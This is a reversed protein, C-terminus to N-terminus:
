FWDILEFRKGGKLRLLNFDTRDVTLIRRARSENALWVLAADVFDIEQDSYKRLTLELQAYASMPVDFVSIGGCRIWALFEAKMMPNLFFCTEVVTASVTALPHKHERLYRAASGTLIGAPKFLAVLFGTDVLVPTM